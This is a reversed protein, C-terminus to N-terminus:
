TGPLLFTLSRIMVSCITRLRSIEIGTMNSFAPQDWAIVPCLCPCGTPQGNGKACEGTQMVRVFRPLRRANGVCEARVIEELGLMRMRAAHPADLDPPSILMFVLSVRSGSSPACRLSGIIGMRSITMKGCMIAGNTTPRSDLTRASSSASFPSRRMKRAVCCSAETSSGVASSM